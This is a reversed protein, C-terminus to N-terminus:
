SNLIEIAAVAINYAEQEKNKLIFNIQNYPPEKLLDKNKIELDFVDVGKILGASLLMVKAAYIATSNMSFSHNVIHMKIKNVGDVLELYDDKNFKGWSLLSLATDFTDKLSDIPTIDLNRYAIEEEAIKFPTNSEGTNYDYEM